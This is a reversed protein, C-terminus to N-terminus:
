ITDVIRASGLPHPPLRGAAKDFMALKVTRELVFPRTTPRLVQYTICFSACKTARAV